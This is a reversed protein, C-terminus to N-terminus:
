LPFHNVPDQKDMLLCAYMTVKLPTTLCLYELIKWSRTRILMYGVLIPGLIVMLKLLLNIMVGIRAILVSTAGAKM